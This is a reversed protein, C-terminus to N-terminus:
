TEDFGALTKYRGALWDALGHLYWRSFRRDSAGGPLSTHLAHHALDTILRFSPAFSTERRAGRHIQGQCVTARGGPLEVLHDFGLFLPLKGGLLLHKMRIRRQWGYPEAPAALSRALAARYIEARSRAGFWASQGALLVRDFTGFYALFLHTDDLLRAIVPRGMGAQSDGFVEEILARYFREFLFAAKSESRYTLDWEALLRVSEGHAATFEGLLPRLVTMFREAQPSYLDLQLPKMTEVTAKDTRALLANIRDARYSAMPVNIPRVRGLSNLDQNATAFFGEPPNLTRPLAEPDEFGQWDNAADWGPLPVLGSVGPRRRPIRGSMQFGINGAADALVWNWTGNALRALVQRGEDVGRATLIGCAADLAAASTQEAGSWRTALYLGPLFPDGELVGHHNEFFYLEEPPHTWRRVTERRTQFDVWAEGRRYKGDRCDEIWSDICDGGAYTVGWALDPTRGLLVGPVGPLTAGMAYRTPKGAGWRLVAEYWIPPLRNVELHPDSALLARGSATRAGAIAWNNSATLRPLVSAWRLSEPVLREAVRVQRILDEDLGGLQGPFLEELKERAVGNQVCEVLFREMEAQSQVLGVFGTLKGTLLVDAPTWREFACRLLRLEWPLAARQFYHNVGRCYAEVASRARPSFAAEEAAADRGFNWRRFFRDLALLDATDQLQECAEGRGLVRTLLMQLGRDRAHCFGLGFHADDLAAATIHAVGAENRHIRVGGAEGRLLLPTQSM